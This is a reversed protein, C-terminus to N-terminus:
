NFRCFLSDDNSDIPKAGEYEPGIFISKASIGNRTEQEQCIDKMLDLIRKTLIRYRFLSSIFKVSYTREVPLSYIFSHFYNSATKVLFQAVQFNRSCEVLATKGEPDKLQMDFQLKLIYNTLKLIKAYIQPSYKEYDRISFLLNILNPNLYLYSEIDVSSEFGPIYSDTRLGLDTQQRITNEEMINDLYALKQILTKNLDNVDNQYSIYIQYILYLAVIIGFIISLDLKFVRSFIYISIFFILIYLFRLEKSGALLIELPFIM